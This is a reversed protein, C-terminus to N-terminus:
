VVAEWVTRRLVKSPRGEQKGWDRGLLPRRQTGVDETERQQLVGVSCAGWGMKGYSCSSGCQVGWGMRGYSCSSGQLLTQPPRGM